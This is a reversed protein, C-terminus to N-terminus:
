LSVYAPQICVPMVVWSDFGLLFLQLVADLKKVLEEQCRRAEVYKKHHGYSMQISDPQSWGWCDSSPYRRRCDCNDLRGNGPRCPLMDILGSMCDMSSISELWHSASEARCCRSPHPSFSFCICWKSFSQLESTPSKLWPFSCFFTRCSVLSM